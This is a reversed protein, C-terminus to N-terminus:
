KVAMTRSTKKRMRGNNKGPKVLHDKIKNKGTKWIAYTKLSKMYGNQATKWTMNKDPKVIHGKIYKSKKM